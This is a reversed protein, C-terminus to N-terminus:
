NLTWSPPYSRKFPLMSLMSQRRSTISVRPVALLPWSTSQALLPSKSSLHVRSRTLPLSSSTTCPLCDVFIFCSSQSLFRATSVFISKDQPHNDLYSVKVRVSSLCSPPLQSCFITPPPSSPLRFKRRKKSLRSKWIQCHDRVASARLQSEVLWKYTCLGPRAGPGEASPGFYRWVRGSHTTPPCSCSTSSKFKADPPVRENTISRGLWASEVVSGVRPSCSAALM